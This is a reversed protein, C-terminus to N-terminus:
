FLLKVKGTSGSPLNAIKVTNEDIIRYSNSKIAEGNDFFASIIVKKTNLNHVVTWEESAETISFEKQRVIPSILSTTVVKKKGSETDIAILLM